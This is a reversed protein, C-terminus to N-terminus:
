EQGKRVLIKVIEVDDSQNECALMLAPPPYGAVQLKPKLKLVELIRDRCSRAPPHEVANVSAGERVLKRVATEDSLKIASILREDLYIQREKLYVNYSFVLLCLIISGVILFTIRRFSLIRNNM